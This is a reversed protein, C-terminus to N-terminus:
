RFFALPVVVVLRGVPSDAVVNEAVSISEAIHAVASVLVVDLYDYVHQWVVGGDVVLGHQRAEVVGNSSVFVEEVGVSERGYTVVVVSQLAGGALHSSQRVYVGFVGVKLFVVELIHVVEDVKARAAEAVIGGLMDTQGRVRQVGLNLFGAQAVVEPIYGGSALRYVAQPHHHGVTNIDVALNQLVFVYLFGLVGLIHVLSGAAVAVHQAMHEFGAIGAHFVKVVPLVRNVREVKNGPYLAVIGVAVGM